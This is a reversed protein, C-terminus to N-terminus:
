PLAIDKLTFPATLEVIRGPTEYTLAWGDLSSPLRQDASETFAYTLKARNGSMADSSPATLTWKRAGDGQSLTIRNNDLWSQHTDFAPSDKPNEIHVTVVLADSQRRISAITVTVGEHTSPPAAPGKSGAKQVAPKAFRFTLMKSPGVAWLTGDVSAIRPCSRDPAAAVVELETAGRGAVPIASRGAVTDRLQKNHADPAFTLRVQRLDVYFPRFRPEWAVDLGLRCHHARTEEDRSVEVRRVAVRFLGTYATQVARYPADTLAVGGDATYASYAIGSAKAIADLAPWFTTPRTPLTVVPGAKTRRLDGVTNGTQTALEALAQPLPLAPRSFTVSRPALEKLATSQPDGQAVCLAPLTALAAVLIATRRM